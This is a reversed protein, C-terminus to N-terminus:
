FIFLVTNLAGTPFHKSVGTCYIYSLPFFKSITKFAGKLAMLFPFFTSSAISFDAFAPPLAVFL